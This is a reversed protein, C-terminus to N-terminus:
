EHTRRKHLSMELFVVGGGKTHVAMLKFENGFTYSTGMKYLKMGTRLGNKVSTSNLIVDFIINLKYRCNSVPLM